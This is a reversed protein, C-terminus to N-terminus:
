QEGTRVLRWIRALAWVVFPLTWVLISSDLVDHCVIPLNPCSGSPPPHIMSPPLGYWIVGVSLGLLPLTARAFPRLGLSRGLAYAGGALIIVAAPFHWTIGGTTTWDGCPYPGMRCRWQTMVLVAGFSNWVPLSLLLLRDVWKAWRGRQAQGARTSVAGSSLPSKTM